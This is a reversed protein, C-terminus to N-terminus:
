INPLFQIEIDNKPHCLYKPTDRLISSYNSYEDSGSERGVSKDPRLLIADPDSQRFITLM